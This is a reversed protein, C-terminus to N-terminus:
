RDSSTKHDGDEGEDNSSSEEHLRYPSEDAKRRMKKMEDSIGSKKSLLHSNEGDQAEAQRSMYQKDNLIKNKMRILDQLDLKKTQIKGFISPLNPGHTLPYNKYLSLNEMDDEAAAVHKTISEETDTIQRQMVPTPVIVPVKLHPDEESM